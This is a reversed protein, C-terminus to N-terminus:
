LVQRGLRETAAVIEAFEVQHAMHGIHPLGLRVLVTKRGHIRIEWTIWRSTITSRAARPEPAIGSEM